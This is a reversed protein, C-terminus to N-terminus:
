NYENKVVYDSSSILSLQPPPPLSTNNVNKLTLEILFSIQNQLGLLFEVPITVTEIPARTTSPKINIMEEEKKVKVNDEAAASKLFDEYKMAVFKEFWIKLKSSYKPYERKIIPNGKFLRLFEQYIKQTLEFDEQNEMAEYILNKLKKISVDKIKVLRKFINSKCILPHAELAPKLWTLWYSRVANNSTHSAKKKSIPHHHIRDRDSTESFSSCSPSEMLFSIPTKGLNLGFM